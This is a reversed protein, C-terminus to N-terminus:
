PKDKGASNNVRAYEYIWRADIENDDLPMRERLSPWKKLAADIMDDKQANGRGTAFKKLTASHVNGFEMRDLSGKPLMENYAAQLEQIRTVFGAAVETAAGGRNHTQEYFVLHPKVAQIKDWLWKRFKLYRTGPSEGRRVDFRDVGSEIGGPADCAWGCNTGTDLALIRV